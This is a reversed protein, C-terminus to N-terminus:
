GARALRGSAWLAELEAAPLPKCFHYGQAEDCGMERLLALDQETEVGEAIVKLGLGQAMSIVSAVVLYADKSKSMQTIFSRDVKLAHVPLHVLYSLCSYGTGFDDLHIRCGLERLEALRRRAGEPDEVLSSETIEIEILGAPVAARELAEVLRPRFAPDTLTRATLNVAIPTRLGRAAWDAQQRVALEVIADTMPRILGTQEALPIFRAPPVMGQEPHVWRVLAEVAHTRGTAVDVKPQYHLVLERRDIARRLEAVLALRRPNEHETAGRHVFHTLDRRAAERAALGARRVLLDPDEGHGPGVAIGVAARVEIPADGVQVPDLFLQQLAQVVPIAKEAGYNPLLIGFEDFSARAVFGGFGNAANLRSALAAVVANGAAYGLSDFLERLSPLCAVLVAVPEGTARANALHRLLRDELATRNPLGTGADHTAAYAAEAEAKNLQERARITEIGFALDAAMEELLNIEDRDFADPEVALLTYAGIVRGEVKLPFSIISGFGAQLATKRRERTFRSEAAIDRIVDHRGSRVATAAPGRGRENDGWSLDLGAVYDDHGGAHAKRVLSKREDDEAYHVM